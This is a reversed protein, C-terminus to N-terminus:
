GIWVKQAVRVNPKRDTDGSELVDTKYQSKQCTKKKSPSPPDRLPNKPKARTKKWRRLGAPCLGPAFIPHGVNNCKNHFKIKRSKRSKGPNEQVRTEPFKQSKRSKRFPAFGGAAPRPRTGALGCQQM